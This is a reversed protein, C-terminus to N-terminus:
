TFENHYNEVVAAMTENYTNVDPPNEESFGMRSFQDMAKERMVIIDGRSPMFLGNSYFDIGRIVRRNLQETKV